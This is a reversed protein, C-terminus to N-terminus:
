AVLEQENRTIRVAAAEAPGPLATVRRAAESLQGEIKAAPVKDIVPPIKEDGGSKRVSNEPHLVVEQPVRGDRVVVEDETAIERISVEGLRDLLLDGTAEVLGEKWASEQHYPPFVLKGPTCRAKKSAGLV